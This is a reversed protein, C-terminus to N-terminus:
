SPSINLNRVKAIFPGGLQEVADLFLDHLESSWKIRGSGHDEYSTQNGRGSGSVVYDQDLRKPLIIERRIGEGGM